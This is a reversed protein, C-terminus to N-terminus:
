KRSQDSTATSISSWQANLNLNSENDKRRNRHQFRIGTGIHGGLPPPLPPLVPPPPPPMNNVSNENFNDLTMSNNSISNPTTSQLISIISKIPSCETSSQLNNNHRSRLISNNSTNSSNDPNQQMNMNMNVNNQFTSAAEGLTMEAQPLWPNSWYGPMQNVGVNSQAIVEAAYTNASESDSLLTDASFNTYLQPNTGLM